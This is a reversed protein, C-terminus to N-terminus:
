CSTPSGGAAAQAADYKQSAALFEDYNDTFFHEGCTNPKVVYYLYNDNTPNAAATLSALGPNSIPGKPLGPYRYTNYPSDIQLDSTTLSNTYDNGLAYRVTADIELPIGQQLRNYIVAAVIPRESDVQVEREIMSAITVVDYVSLNKKKAYSLNVQALNQDFAELQKNVLDSVPAGKEVEYTAPFLFGELSAGKPAGYRSVNFKKAAQKVAKDYDGKLGAKKAVSSMEDSTLGEPITVTTTKLKAPGKAVPAPDGGSVRSLAYVAGAGIALIAVLALLRRRWLTWTSGTSAPRRRPPVGGTGAPAAVPPEVGGAAPVAAWEESESGDRRPATIPEPPVAEVDETDLPRRRVPRRPMVADASMREGTPSRPTLPPPTFPKPEEAPTAPSSGPPAEEVPPPESAQPPAAAGDQAAAPAAPPRRFAPPEVGDAPPAPDKARERTQELKERGRSAAGDLLGGVRSALSERNDRARRKSERELRRREREHAAPDEALFPDVPPKEDASM